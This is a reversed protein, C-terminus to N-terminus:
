RLMTNVTLVNKNNYKVIVAGSNDTRIINSDIKNLRNLTDETPHGYTNNVGSQIVSFEPSIASLFETSSAYKSGHHAVNLIDIDNPFYPLKLLENEVDANIDGTILMDLDMYKIWIVISSNNASINDAYDDIIQFFTITVDDIIISDGNIVENLETAKFNTIIDGEIYEIPCGYYFNKVIIDKSIDVMGGMHDLHPHTLIFADVTNYGNKLLFPKVIDKGPEVGSTKWKPAGGADILITKGKPTKIFVSNGQGIDIFTIDLTPNFVNYPFAITIIIISVVILAIKKSHAIWYSSTKAFLIITTYILTIQLISPSAVLFSSWKSEIIFRNSWVLIGSIYDIFVGIFNNFIGIPMFVIFVFGSIIMIAGLPLLVLNAIISLPSFLNFYYAILPTVGLQASIAIGMGSGLIRKSNFTKVIYNEIDKGIVIIFFVAAFSLLFGVEFLDLPRVLLIILVAFILSNLSNQKRGFLPASITILVMISARMVSPPFGIIFAYSLIIFSTIVFSTKKSLKLALLIYNLLIVLFGVHLGSIAFLHSIGSKRFEDQIDSDMEYDIGLIMSKLLLSTVKSTYKDYGDSVYEKFANIISYPFSLESQDKIIIKDNNVFMAYFIDRNLLYSKYDFAKPNRTYDPQKILGIVNIITGIMIEESNYQNDIMNISMRINTNEVQLDNIMDIHVDVKIIDDDVSVINYIIGQISVEDKYVNDKDVKDYVNSINMYGAFTFLLLAILFLYKNNIFNNRIKFLALILFLCVGFIVTILLIHKNYINNSLAKYILIGWIYFLTFWIIPRSIYPKHIKKINSLLLKIM